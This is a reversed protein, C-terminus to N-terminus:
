GMGSLKVISSFLSCGDEDTKMEYFQYDIIIYSIIDVFYYLFRQICWNM